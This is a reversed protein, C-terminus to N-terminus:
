EKDRSDEIPEDGKLPVPSDKLPVPSYHRMLAKIATEREKLSITGSGDTDFAVVIRNVMKEDFEGIGEGKIRGRLADMAFNKEERSITEDKDRDFYVMIEARMHRIKEVRDERTAQMSLKRTRFLGDQQAQELAAVLEKYTLNEDLDGDHGDFFKSAIYKIDLESELPATTDGQSAKGGGEGQDGEDAILPVPKFYEEIILMANNREKTSLSGNGDLDFCSVLNVSIDTERTSGRLLDYVRNKEKTSFLWDDDQDVLKIYKDQLAKLEADTIEYQKEIYRIAEGREVTSLGVSGNQNFAFLIKKVMDDDNEGFGKGEIEGRLADSARQREERSIKGDEDEDAWRVVQDRADAVKIEYIQRETEPEPPAEPMVEKDPASETVSETVSEPVPDPVPDPTPEAKPEPVLDELKLISRLSNVMEEMESSSLVGDEDMDFHILMSKMQNSANAPLALAIVLLALAFLIRMNNM